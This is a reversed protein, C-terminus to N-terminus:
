KNGQELGFKLSAGELTPVLYRSGSGGDPNVDICQARHCVVNKFAARSENRSRRHGPLIVSGTHTGDRYGNGNPRERSPCDYTNRRAASRHVSCM